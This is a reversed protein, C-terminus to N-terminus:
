GPGLSRIEFRGEPISAVLSLQRPIRSVVLCVGPDVASAAERGGRSSGLGAFWCCVSRRCPTSACAVSSCSTSQVGSICPICPICSVCPVCPVSLTCAAASLAAPHAMWSLGGERGSGGEDSTSATVVSMRALEVRGDGTCLWCGSTFEGPSM